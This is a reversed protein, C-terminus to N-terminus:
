FFQVNSGLFPFLDSGNIIDKGLSIGHKHGCCRKSQTLPLFTTVQSEKHWHDRHPKCIYYLYIYPFQGLSASYTIGGLKHLYTGSFPSLQNTSVRPIGSDEQTEWRIMMSWRLYGLAKPATHSCHIVNPAHGILQLLFQLLDRKKSRVGVHKSNEWCVNRESMKSVQLKRGGLRGLNKSRRRNRSVGSAQCHWHQLVCSELPM